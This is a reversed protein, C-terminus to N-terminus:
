RLSFFNDNEAAATAPYDRCRVQAALKAGIVVHNQDVPAGLM